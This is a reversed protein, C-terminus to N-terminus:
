NGATLDVSPPRTTLMRGAASTRKSLRILAPQQAQACRWCIMSIGTTQCEACAMNGYILDQGGHLNSVCSGMCYMKATSCTASRCAVICSSASQRAAAPPRRGHAAAAFARSCVSGASSLASSMALTADDAGGVTANAFPPKPAAPASAAASAAASFGGDGSLLAEGMPPLPATAACEAPDAAPPMSASVRPCNPAAEATEGLTTSPGSWSRLCGGASGAAACNRRAHRSQMASSFSSAAPPCDELLRSQNQLLTPRAQSSQAPSTGAMVVVARRALQAPRRGNSTHLNATSRWPTLHRLKTLSILLRQCTVLGRKVETCARSGLASKQM